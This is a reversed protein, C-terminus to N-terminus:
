KSGKKVRKARAGYKKLLALIEPDTNNFTSFFKQGEQVTAINLPVNFQRLYDAVFEKDLATAAFSTRLAEVIAKPTGPPAYVSIVMKGLYTQIWKMTKWKPGSPPKGHVETYLDVFSKMDKFNPNSETNGEADVSPFYFLGAGEGPKVYSPEVVSRYTHDPTSHSDVESQRLSTLIKASGRFGPVIRHPVGLLEFSM